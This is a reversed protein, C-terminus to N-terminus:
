GPLRLLDSIRALHYDDHEAQFYLMDVLRMMVRLRPHHAAREFAYPSLVELREVTWDRERRFGALIEDLPRENFRGEWTQRNTPNAAHLTGAGAAYNDLRAQVLAELVWLHGAQEQISWDAGNRRTRREAPLPTLRAELRAPTGRLREIMEPYLEVPFDFNFHRELWDIHAM